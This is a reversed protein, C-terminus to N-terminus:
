ARGALARTAWEAVARRDIKSQHRIDVPLARMQLVAAIPAGAAAHVSEALALPAVPHRRSPRAGDPVVVIVIQQAGVPGVGVAAASRVGALAEVRQEIGVPTVVGDPSTIIHQLRGMVWLRGQEDLAGIDGTRHFGPESSAARETAWLADYRDKGHAAAVCIEGVAGPMSTLQSH